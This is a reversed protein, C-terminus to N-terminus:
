QFTASSEAYDPQTTQSVTRADALQPNASHTKAEEQNHQGRPNSPPSLRAALWRKISRGSRWLMDRLRPAWRPPVVRFNVTAVPEARLAQKYPEDGRMLDYAKYGRQIAWRIMLLNMLKGPEHEIAEPAMGSQYSYVTQEGLLLFEAAAPHGDLELWCAALRGAPALSEAARRVFATMAPWAFCGPEGLQRRRRQHLDILIDLTRSLTPPSDAWHLVARGSQVYATMMKRVHNRRKRSFCSLYQEWTEPLAIRWCNPGSLPNVACGRQLLKHMLCAVPQDDQAVAELELLDWPPAVERGNPPAGGITRSLYEAVATAVDEERGPECLLSLYDSCALGSGLWRIVRGFVRHREIYWPALGLLKGRADLACPVFLEARLSAPQFKGATRAMCDGYDRLGFARWWNALWGWSRTPVEASMRDWQQAYPVLDELRRVLVIRM